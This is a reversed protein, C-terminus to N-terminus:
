SSPGRVTASVPTGGLRALHRWPRLAWLLLLMVSPAALAAVEEPRPAVAAAALVTALSWAAVAAVRRPGPTARFMARAGIAAAGLVLAQWGAWPHEALPAALERVATVPDRERAVVDLGPLSPTAGLLLGADGAALQWAVVSALGTLALWVRRATGPVLGVLAVALPGLGAAFALPAALPALLLRPAGRGSIWAAMGVVALAAAAGPASRSLLAVTGALAALATLAPWLAGGLAAVAAGVAVETPRLGTQTGLVAVAVAAAAGAGALAPLARPPVAPVGRRLARPAPAWRALTDALAVAAPRRAPDRQLGATVAEALQRPLDPRLRALPPLDARAARRVAEVPNPHHVPNSGTLAEYLMLCAAYVDSAPLAPRGEAQEPSMYAVTGVLAGAQTLSAEGSVWAVGFDTLRGRGDTDVLVNAPKVDRHVVGRGHAHALARLVGAVVEVAAADDVAGAALAQRLSPGEVLEWVLRVCDPDRGWDLIPVINPHELRSAARVERRVRAMLEDDAPITKVAVRRGTAVDEASRVSSTAGRGVLPGLRYRGLALASTTATM